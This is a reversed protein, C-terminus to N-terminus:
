VLVWPCHDQRYHISSAQTTQRTGYRFLAFYPLTQQALQGIFTRIADFYVTVSVKYTKVKRQQQAPYVAMTWLRELNENIQKLLTVPNLRHYTAM